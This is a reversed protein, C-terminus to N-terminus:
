DKPLGWGKARFIVYSMRAMTDHVAEEFNDKTLHTKYVIAQLQDLGYTALSRINDDVVLALIPKGLAHAMGCELVVETSVQPPVLVCFVDCRKISEIIEERWHQGPTIDADTVM